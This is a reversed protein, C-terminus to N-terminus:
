AAPDRRRASDRVRRWIARFRRRTARLDDKADHREREVKEAIERATEAAGQGHKAAGFAVLGGIGLAIGIAAIALATWM